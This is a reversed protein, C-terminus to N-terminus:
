PVHREDDNKLRYADIKKNLFEVEQRLYELSEHMRKLTEYSNENWDTQETMLMLLLPRLVRLIMKKIATKLGGLLPQPSPVPEFPITMTLRLDHLLADLEAKNIEISFIEKKGPLVSAIPKEHMSAPALDERIQQLLNAVERDKESRKTESEM